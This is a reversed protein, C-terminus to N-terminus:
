TKSLICTHVLSCKAKDYMLFPIDNVFLIGSIKIVHLWTCVGGEDAVPAGFSFDVENTASGSGMVGPFERKKSPTSQNSKVARAENRAQEQQEEYEEIINSVSCFFIQFIWILM